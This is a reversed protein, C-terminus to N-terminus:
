NILNFDDKLEIPSKMPLQDGITKWQNNQMCLEYYRRVQWAHGTILTQIQIFLLRNQNM